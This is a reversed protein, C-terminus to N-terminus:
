VSEVFTVETVTLDVQRRDNFAYPVAHYREYMGFIRLDQFRFLLHQNRHSQLWRHEAPTALEASARFTRREYPPVFARTSGSATPRYVTDTEEVPDFSDMTVWWMGDDPDNADCVYMVAFPLTIIM